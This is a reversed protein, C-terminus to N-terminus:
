RTPKTEPEGNQPKPQVVPRLLAEKLDLGLVAAGAAALAILKPNITLEYVMFDLILCHVPTNNRLDLM